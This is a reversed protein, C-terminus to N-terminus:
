NKLPGEHSDGVTAGSCRHAYRDPEGLHQIRSIPREERGTAFAKGHPRTLPGADAHTSRCPNKKRFKILPRPVHRLRCRHHRLRSRHRVRL